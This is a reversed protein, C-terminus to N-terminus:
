RIYSFGCHKIDECSSLFSPPNGSFDIDVPCGDGVARIPLAYTAIHCLIVHEVRSEGHALGQPIGVKMRM